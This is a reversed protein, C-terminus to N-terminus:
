EYNQADTAQKIQFVCWHDLAHMYIFTQLAFSFFWSFVGSVVFVVSFSKQSILLFVIRYEFLPTSRNGKDKYIEHM